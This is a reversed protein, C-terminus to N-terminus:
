KWAERINEIVALRFKIVFETVEKMKGPDASSFVIHEDGLYVFEDSNHPMLYGEWNFAMTLFILGALIGNEHESSQEFLHGAADITHRLEGCGLRMTEFLILPEPPNTEWNSLWFMRDVDGSVWHALRTSLHTLASVKQPITIMIREGKVPFHLNRNEDVRVGLSSLWQESEAFTLCRMDFRNSRIKTNLKLEAASFLVGPLSSFYHLSVRYSPSSSTALGRFTM